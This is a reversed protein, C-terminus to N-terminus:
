VNVLVMWFYFTAFILSCTLFEAIRYGILKWNM